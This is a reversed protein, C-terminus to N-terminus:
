IPFSVRVFNCYRFRFPSLWRHLFPRCTDHRSKLEGFFSSDDLNDRTGITEIHDLGYKSRIGFIIRPDNNHFGPTGNQHVGHAQALGGSQLRSSSLMAAINQGSTSNSSTSSSAGAVGTPTYRKQATSTIPAFSSTALNQKAWYKIRNSLGVPPSSQDFSKWNTGCNSCEPQNDDM